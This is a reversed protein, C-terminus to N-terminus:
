KRAQQRAKLRVLLPFDPDAEALLKALDRDLVDADGHRGEERYLESLRNAAAMWASVRLGIGAFTVGAASSTWRDRTADELVAIARGRDGRKVWANAFLVPGDGTQAATPGGNEAAAQFLRTAEEIRGETLALGAEAADLM